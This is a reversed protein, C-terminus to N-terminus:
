ARLIGVLKRFGVGRLGLGEVWEARNGGTEVGGRGDCATAAWAEGSVWRSEPEKVSVSPCAQCPRDTNPELEEM